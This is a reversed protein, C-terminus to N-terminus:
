STEPPDFVRTERQEYLKYAKHDAATLQKGTLSRPWLRLARVVNLQAAYLFVQAQLYLWFLLALVLGFQGYLGELSQLHNTLVYGGVLQLTQMGVAAVIAGPIITKTSPHASSATRFVFVFVGFLVLLSVAVPIIRFGLSQGLASTAVGSLTTAALFGLGAGIILRFSNLTGAPFGLRKQKPVEWVHNLAHRVIDAIGKAGYFAVLLSVFLVLGSQSPAQISAQLETGIVPFYNNISNVIQNRLEPNDRSTMEAVSTAVLLLPFLSLFAYYTILAGEYGTEDDGYKKVLAHPFALMPHRRQLKDAYALLSDVLKLPNKQPASM